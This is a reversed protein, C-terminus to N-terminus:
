WLRNVKPRNERWKRRRDANPQFGFYKDFKARCSEAKAPSYKDTDEISLACHKVWEVLHKHHPKAIAPTGPTEEGVPISLQETSLPTRSVELYLVGDEEPPPHITVSQEDVILYEPESSEDERWTPNDNDMEDRSVIELYLYEDSDTVIYAKLIRVISEHTDYTATDATVDIECVAETTADFILPMRTCSEDIAENLWTLVETDTWTYPTEDDGSELRFRAILETVNM